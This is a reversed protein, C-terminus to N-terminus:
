SVHKWLVSTYPQEFYGHSALCLKLLKNTLIGAQPLGYKTSKRIEMYSMVMLLKKCLGYHKIIDEPILRQLPINM